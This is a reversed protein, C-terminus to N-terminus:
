RAPELATIPYLWLAWTPLLGKCWTYKVSYLFITPRSCRTFHLPNLDHSANPINPTQLVQRSTRLKCSKCQHGCNAPSIPTRLNSSNYQLGSNAHMCSKDELGLIKNSNVTLKHLHHKFVNKLCKSYWTLYHHRQGEKQRLCSLVSTVDLVQRLCASYNKRRHM